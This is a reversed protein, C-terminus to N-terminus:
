VSNRVRTRLLSCFISSSRLSKRWNTDSLSDFIKLSKDSFCPHFSKKKRKLSSLFFYCYMLASIACSSSCLHPIHRSSRTGPGGQRLRHQRIIVQIFPNGDTTVTAVVANRESHFIVKRSQSFPQCDNFAPM